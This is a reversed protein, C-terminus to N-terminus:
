DIVVPDEESGMIYDWCSFESGEETTQDEPLIETPEPTVGAM